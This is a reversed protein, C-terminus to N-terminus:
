EQVDVKRSHPTSQRPFNDLHDLYEEIEHLPIGLSIATRVAEQRDSVTNAVHLMLKAIQSAM